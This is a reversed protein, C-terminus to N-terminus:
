QNVMSLLIKEMDEKTLRDAYIAIEFGKEQNILEISRIM